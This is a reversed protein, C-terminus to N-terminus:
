PSPGTSSSARRSLGRRPSLQDGEVQARGRARGPVRRPPRPLLLRPRRMFQRAVAAIDDERTSCRPSSRRAPGGAGALLEAAEAPPLTGRLQALYLALVQLAVLQALHTKTAAVGVEPGAHTYLVGDAERAMSSDVVNCIVLVKAEGRRAERMAQLTDITEGSQSM